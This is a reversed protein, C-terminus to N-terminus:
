SLTSQQSIIVAYIDAQLKSFSFTKVFEKNKTFSNTLRKRHM